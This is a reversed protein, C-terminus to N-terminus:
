LIINSPKLNRHLIGQAHLDRLATTVCRGVALAEALSLPREILRDRLPVGPVFQWAWLLQGEAAQCELLPALHPSEIRRLLAAEHALRMQAGASISDVAALRIVVPQGSSIDVAQLTEHAAARYLSGIVRYRLGVVRDGVSPLGDAGGSSEASLANGAM